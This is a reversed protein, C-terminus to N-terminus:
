LGVGVRAFFLGVRVSENETAPVGAVGDRFFGTVDFGYRLEAFVRPGVLPRVDVGAGVSAGVAVGRAEADLLDGVAFRLEPGVLAYPTVLPFAGRLQLDVPVAVFAVNLEERAAAEGQAEIRGGSVYLVGAKLGVPGFGAQGYGGVHFGASRGTDFSAADSFSAFNLGAQVGFSPILQAHAAPAALVLALLLVSLRM